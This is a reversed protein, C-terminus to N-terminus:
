QAPAFRYITGNYDVVLLERAADEGFSAVNLDTDAFVPSQWEGEADRYAAWITGYGWDAYFYVGQLDPLASGRYVYGGAVTVGESHDYAAFPFVMDDTVTDGAFPAAAEFINWGYNVGGPSEAPEFNIEEWEAQGVDSIYLDGTAADFSFRWPNRLGYAWVEPAFADNWQIPNDAPITYTGDEQVDIRLIKGLLTAPNQGNDLPDGAGGGDGTAIYLYGDDPGFALHGGNHNGYGDPKPIELLIRGSNPDALNPDDASVRYQAVVITGERDTYDVYFLGNTAYDPDFAVGLLGRETYGGNFVEPSLLSGIDLFPTELVTDNEVIFIKGGQEVVFLRETGDGAHTAYIPRDFGSAVEVLDVAAPDPPADRRTVPQDEQALLSASISLICLGAIVRRSLLTM